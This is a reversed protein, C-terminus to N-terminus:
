GFAFRWMVKHSIEQVLTMASLKNDCGFFDVGEKFFDNDKVVWGRILFPTVPHDRKSIVLFMDPRQNLRAIGELEEGLSQLKTTIISHTM